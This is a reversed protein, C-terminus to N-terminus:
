KDEEHTFQEHPVGALFAELAAPEEVEEVIASAGNLQDNLSEVFSAHPAAANLMAVMAEADKNELTFTIM